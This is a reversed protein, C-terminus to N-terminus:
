EDPQDPAPTDDTEEEEEREWYRSLLHAAKRLRQIDANSEATGIANSIGFENLPTHKELEKRQKPGLNMLDVITRIGFGRLIKVNDGFRICLKAQLLWDILQRACYPTKFLLPIFDSAALDYCNDIGLEELRMKDFADIGEIVELPMTRASSNKDYNLFNIRHTLWRIARQPFMGILFAAAPMLNSSLLESGSNTLPDMAHYTLLAVMSAFIMRLALGYFTSPVLDNMAYRRFITRLGWLYAGLFAMGYVLLAGRRYPASPDATQTLPPAIAANGTTNDPRSPLTPGKPDPSATQPQKGPSETPDPLPDREISGADPPQVFHIGGLLLTPKEAIRFEDGLLLAGLGLLSILSAFSSALAFHKFSIHRRHLEMNKRSINLIRLIRDTEAKRQNQRFLCYSYAILPLFASLLLTFFTKLLLVIDENGTIITDIM